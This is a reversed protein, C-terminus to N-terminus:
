FVFEPEPPKKKLLLGNINGPLWEVPFGKEKLKPDPLNLYDTTLTKVEELSRGDAELLQQITKGAARNIHPKFRHIRVFESRYHDIAVKIDPNTKKEAKPNLGSSKKPSLSEKKNKYKLPPKSKDTELPTLSDPGAVNQLTEAVNPPKPNEQGSMDPPIPGAVNSPIRGNRILRFNQIEITMPNKGSVIIYEERKLINMWRELTRLPIETKEVIASYTTKVRGTKDTMSLLAGFLFVATGMKQVHKWDWLGDMVPTYKKSGRPKSM